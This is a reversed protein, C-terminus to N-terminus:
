LSFWALGFSGIWALVSGFLLSWMTIFKVKAAKWHRRDHDAATVAKQRLKLIVIQISFLTFALFFRSQPFTVLIVWILFLTNFVLIILM